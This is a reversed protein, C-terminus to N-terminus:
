VRHGIVKAPVGAAISFPPIDKLVVSGAGVISGKGIRVGACVTVDHGLWVDDEIIIDGDYCDQYMIPVETDEWNHSYAVFLCNAATLVNNGLIIRGTSKGAQFINNHNISCNNGISIREPQRFLVTAHVNSGKGIHAKGRCIIYNVWYYAILRAIGVFFQLTVLSILMEKLWYWKSPKDYKVKSLNPNM